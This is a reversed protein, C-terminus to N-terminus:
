ALKPTPSIVWVKPLPSFTDIATFNTPMPGLIRSGRKAGISGELSQHKENRIAEVDCPVTILGTWTTKIDERRSITESSRRYRISGGAPLSDTCVVGLESIILESDLV